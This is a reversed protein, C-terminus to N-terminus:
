TCMYTYIFKGCRPTFHCSILNELREAGEKVLLHIMYLSSGLKRLEKSCAFTM